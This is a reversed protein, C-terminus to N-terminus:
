LGDLGGYISDGYSSMGFGAISADGGPVIVSGGCTNVWAVGYPSVDGSRSLGGWRDANTDPYRRQLEINAAYNQMRYQLVSGDVDLVWDTVECGHIIEGEYVWFDPPAVPPQDSM